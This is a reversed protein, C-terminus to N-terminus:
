KIIRVMGNEWNGNYTMGSSYTMEGLGQPQDNAWSGVYSSGLNCTLSGEGHKLGDVWGGTYVDGNPYTLIGQGDILFFLVKNIFICLIYTKM